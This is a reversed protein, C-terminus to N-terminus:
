GHRQWGTSAAWSWLQMRRSDEGLAPPPGAARCAAEAAGLAGARMIAAGALKGGASAGSSSGQHSSSGAAQSGESSGPEQHAWAYIAPEGSEGQSLALATLHRGRLANPLEGEDQWEPASSGDASLGPLFVLCRLPNSLWLWHASSGQKPDAHLVLM